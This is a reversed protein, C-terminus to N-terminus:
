YSIRIGYIERTVADLPYSVSANRQTDQTGEAKHGSAVRDVQDTLPDVFFFSQLVDTTYSGGEVPSNSEEPIHYILM